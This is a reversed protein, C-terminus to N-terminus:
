EIDVFPLQERFPPKARVVSYRPSCIMFDDIIYNLCTSFRVKATFARWKNFGQYAQEVVMDGEASGMDAVQAIEKRTAPDYVPFTTSSGTWKGGIYGRTRFLSESRLLSAMAALRAQYIRVM